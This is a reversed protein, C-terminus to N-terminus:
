MEGLDIREDIRIQEIFEPMHSVLLIGGDFGEIAEAIVPLHRFNIHNTPEDLILLGPKQLMFRAYCLLGKQGESLSGVNNQIMDGPILFHAATAFIQQQNVPDMVKALTNMVTENFDLGAFDQHYYGVNVGDTIHADKSKGAALTHLLTSKGVGNPGEILVRMRRRLTIGVSKRKLEHNRMFSIAKIEGLPKSFEQAGIAFPRIARDEKRVDVMNDEADEVADRMKSALKRMKGGKHAFFNIKEKSDLIDKKLQANERQEREIRASIEEIVTLYDGVFQEVKHTHSDLYLVGHTFANLFAADHSIVIVTKEYMVLFSTLHDIGDKDLNNTPEDLLLIDPQQILAFALLLRSQQGGSHQRITKDLATKLNVADLVQTIHRDIDHKKESFASQFYDKVTWDLQDKPMIQKAIGITAGKRIHIKGEQPKLERTILQFITTKGAGNQGMVTIKARERVSFNTEKLVDKKHGYKFTVEDFRVIVDGHDYTM